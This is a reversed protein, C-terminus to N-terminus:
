SETTRKNEKGLVLVNSVDETLARACHGDGEHGLKNVLVHHFLLYDKGLVCGSLCCANIRDMVRSFVLCLFKLKNIKKKKRGKKEM